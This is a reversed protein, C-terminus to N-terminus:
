ILHFIHVHLRKAVWRNRAELVMDKGDREEEVLDVFWFLEIMQAGDMGEMSWLSNSRVIERGPMRAWAEESLFPSRQVKARLVEVLGKEPEWLVCVSDFVCELKRVVKSVGPDTITEQGIFEFM